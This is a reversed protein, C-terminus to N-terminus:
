AAITHARQFAALVSTKSVLAADVWNKLDSAASAAVGTPAVTASTDAVVFGTTDAQLQAWTLAGPQDSGWPNYLQFTATTANYGIVSYAHGGVLGDGGASTTGATVAKGSTIGNILAQENSNSLGYGSANKGLVQADVPAMWGGAISAYTNTGDRGELGTENWQAYAKEALAMWLENGSSTASAGANSYVLHGSSNTPLMRDVTLYDPTGNHYLRVTWTNDGNDIFMNQIALPNSKAVAGLSAIYYCDGLAGQHEDTYSPGNVFLSGSVSRYTNSGAAPHDSGLFWKDVLETLQTASSGVVLNGLAQGQYHANATNGNVVDGALTQVYGPMKLQAADAVILKLDALESSSVPGASSVSSLIKMIDSRSISGDADLSQALGALAANQLGLFNTGSAVSVTLTPRAAATGNERAAFNVNGLSNAPSTVDLEFSYISNTSFSQHLLSSVDITIPSGTKLSAGSFTVAAGSAAPKNNWTLEAAPTNDNSGNGEIWGDSSDGLLRVRITTSAADTNLSIPTLTLQAMTITGSIASADFKLFAQRVYSASSDNKLDWETSNGYNDAAYSGGRVFTDAVAALTSSMLLRPELAEWVSRGSVSKGRQSGYFRGIERTTM